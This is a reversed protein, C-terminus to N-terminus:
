KCRASKINEDFYRTLTLFGNRGDTFLVCCLDKERLVDIRRIDQVRSLLAIPASWKMTLPKGGNVVWGTTSGAIWSLEVSVYLGDTNQRAVALAAWGESFNVVFAQNDM